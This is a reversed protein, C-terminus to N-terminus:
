KLSAGKKRAVPVRSDLQEQARKRKGQKIGPNSGPTRRSQITLNGLEDPTRGCRVQARASGVRAPLHTLRYTIATAIITLKRAAICLRFIAVKAISVSNFQPFKIRYLPMRVNSTLACALPAFAGPPRFLKEALIRGSTRRSPWRPPPIRERVPTKGTTQMIRGDRM